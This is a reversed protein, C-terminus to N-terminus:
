FQLDNQLRGPFLAQPPGDGFDVQSALMRNLLGTNNSEVRWLVIHDGLAVAMHAMTQSQEPPQLDSKAVPQGQAGAFQMKHGQILYATETGLPMMGLVQTGGTVLTKLLTDMTKRNKLAKPPICGPGVELMTLIGWAKAGNAEVVRGVSLLLKSCAGPQPNDTNEGSDEGYRSNNTANALDRADMPQLEAPYRFTLHLEADSYVQTAPGQAAPAQARAAPVTMVATLLGAVYWGRMNALTGSCRPAASLGRGM